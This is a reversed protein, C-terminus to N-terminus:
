HAACDVNRMVRTRGFHDRGVHAASTRPRHVRGICAASARPAKRFSRV